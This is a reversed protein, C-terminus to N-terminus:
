ASASESDIYQDVAISAGASAMWRIAGASLHLGVLDPDDAVEQSVSVVVECSRAVLTAARRAVPEGLSEIAAALGDTGGHTKRSLGLDMSWSAWPRIVHGVPSLSGRDYGDDPERAMAVSIEALTLDRSQVVLAAKIM